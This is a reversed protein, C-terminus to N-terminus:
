LVWTGAIIVGVITTSGVIAGVRIIGVGFGVCNEFIAEMSEGFLVVKEEVDRNVCSDSTGAGVIGGGEGDGTMTGVAVVVFAVSAGDM